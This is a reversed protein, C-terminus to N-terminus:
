FLVETAVVQGSRYDILGMTRLSGLYNYYGGSTPSFGALEALQPKAIPTPHEGILVKLIRTRSEGIMRFIQERLEGITSPIEPPDQMSDVFTKGESTLFITAEGGYDALGASRLQGLYNYYGGSTPSYGAWLAVQSKSPRDIGIGHLRAIASLIRLHAKTLRIEGGDEDFAQGTPEAIPKRRTEEFHPVPQALRAEAVQKYDVHKPPAIVQVGGKGNTVKYTDAARDLVEVLEAVSRRVRRMLGTEQSWARDFQKQLEHNKERLQVVERKLEDEKEMYEPLLHPGPQSSVKKQLERELRTIQKRLEKPNEQKAREITASIATQLQTLDVDALTKPERRAEGPKPTASSNFTERQRVHVQQFIGETGEPWGPAWYWATGLPLSALSAMMTDRQKPTGHVKIWAEVADQDQPAITRLAILIEAQTLVNKNLVASRQTILTVGIGKKRGRRVIDEVAGLMREEGHMPRQPAFADAEDIFLHVPDRNRRYLTELFDTVFRAQENKRFLELDLIVSIRNDIVFNAITEGAGPELPLDGHEGGLVPVQFKSPQGDHTARLGWWAGTPDIIIVHAGAKLFEEAHVSGTYTKGAGRKALIAFTQTIADIPLALGEGIRIKPM